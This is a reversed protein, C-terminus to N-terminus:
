IDYKVQDAPVKWEPLHYLLNLINIQADDFRKDIAVVEDRWWLFLYPQDEYIKEQMEKWIKAAKEPDPTALGKDILADVEPNSYSPYNFRYEEGSHWMASPDVFLGASWGGLMAEFDRNRARETMANFEMFDLKMNVGINKLDAQILQAAEMRRENERNTILTFEFPTGDKDVIGDGNSDTWGASALLEKAKEVNKKIPEIEARTACIEPTITGVAQKAYVDGTEKSTLLREIMGDIDVAHAMAQRVAKDQFRPDKLNWAVYDMFRYGRREFRLNDMSSRLADADQVKIGDMLDIEGKKLKLLRTQYEPVVRFMVRKLHAINEEPGTYDPNPELVFYENPKHESLMLPGSPLPKRSLPHTRLSARDADKLRHAPVYYGSVTSLRTTKDGPGKWSFTISTPSNVRPPAAFDKVYGFRPSAVTEDAILEYALAVDEADVIEGDAWAIDDRMEFTLETADDNWEWSKYLRPEFELECDFSSDLGPEFVYAFVASDSASSSVVPLLNHLDSGAAYILMDRQEPGRKETTTEPATPASGGNCGANAGIGALLALGSATVLLRPALTPSLPFRSM